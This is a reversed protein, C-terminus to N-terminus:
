SCSRSGGTRCPRRPPDSLLSDKRAGGVVDCESRWRLLGQPRSFRADWFGLSGQAELGPLRGKICGMGSVLTVVRYSAVSCSGERCGLSQPLRAWGWPCLVPM